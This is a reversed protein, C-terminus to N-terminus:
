SLRRIVDDAKEQTLGVKGDTRVVHPMLTEGMDFVDDDLIVFREVVGQDAGDIWAQIEEGRQGGSMRTLPTDGILPISAGATLLTGRFEALSMHLRWSSSLVVKVDPLARIIRALQDVCERTLYKYTSPNDRRWGEESNLVGDVDLFLVKLRREM